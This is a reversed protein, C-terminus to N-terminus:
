WAKMSGSVIRWDDGFRYWVRIYRIKQNKTVGDIVFAVNMLTSVVAAYEFCQSWRNIVNMKTISFNPSKHLNLDDVKSVLTGDLATFSLSNDLLLSLEDTDGKLQAIRLREEVKSIDLENSM